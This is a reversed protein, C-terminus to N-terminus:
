SNGSSKIHEAISIAIVLSIPNQRPSLAFRAEEEHIGTSESLDGVKVELSPILEETMDITLNRYGKDNYYKKIAEVASLKMNETLVRDKALGVKAELDDREGKRVGAFKFDILRPREKIAMEIFLNSGELHTLYIQIDSILSQKWLKSIAKGFADTGPIQVKDGVALGSISIILNQDFAISGTVTIGAITYEKPTRSNFIEQLAPNVSVASSDQAFLQPTSFFLIAIFFTNQYIRRM